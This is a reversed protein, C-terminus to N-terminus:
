STSVSVPQLRVVAVTADDMGDEPVSALIKAALEGSPGDADQWARHVADEGGAGDSLLVLTQGRRLSLREATERGETISLGPPPTATGVKITDAGSILYSPPAGWKYLTVKGTDLQLEALDITVAGACGRLACLSNVSRLAYEAPYGGSLLKKLMESVLAGDRAAEPGTGMGDCLLVYYRCEVGAFWLCKDGNVTERSASCAGIEPRFWANPPNQRGALSDSLDQLYESLFRHQQVVAARYERQRDRDARIARFQEQSRRLEQLLRGSKRCSIPLDEGNGLPKHLLGVPIQELKGKCHKRHSCGSCARDVARHILAQEDVPPAEVDSLINETQKLVASVMELRVQAFGTEGRRGALAPKGPAFVAALGGLILGPFPYLDWVGSLAMVVVYLVPPATYRLFKQKGPMLRTLWALCLAATMPVPTVQALDLALGALAAAPFAGSVALFGAAIYGLGVYPIPMVQALALTALGCVLWDVVADRRQLAASFVWNAGMALAIRTLYMWVPVADGWWLQVMLGSFAVIAGTMAPMLLPRDQLLAKGGLMVMSLMGLGMWLAGQAGAQGWFLLYGGLGGLAMLVGPWGSAACVLALALPQPYGRLSAASLLGGSLLYVACQVTGHVRSDQVWRRLTRRWRRVYVGISVMM